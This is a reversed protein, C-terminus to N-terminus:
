LPLLENISSGECIAWCYRTGRPKRGRMGRKHKEAFAVMWEHYDTIPEEPLLPGLSKTMPFLDLLGFPNNEKGGRGNVWLPPFAIGHLYTHWGQYMWHPNYFVEVRVARRGTVENRRIHDLREAQRKRRLEMVEAWTIYTRKGRYDTDVYAVEPPLPKCKGGLLLYGFGGPEWVSRPIPGTM